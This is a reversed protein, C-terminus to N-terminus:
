LPNNFNERFPFTGFWPFNYRIPLFFAEIQVRLIYSQCGQILTKSLRDQCATKPVVVGHIIVQNVYFLVFLYM